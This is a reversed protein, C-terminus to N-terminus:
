KKEDIQYLLGELNEFLFSSDNSWNFKLFTIRDQLFVKQWYKRRRKKEPPTLFSIIWWFAYERRNWLQTSVNGLKSKRTYNVKRTLLVSLVCSYCVEVCTHMQHFRDYAYLKSWMWVFELIYCLLHILIDIMRTEHQTAFDLGKREKSKLECYNLNSIDNFQLFIM